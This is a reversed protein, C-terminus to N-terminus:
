QVFFISTAPPNPDGCGTQEGVLMVEAAMWGMRGSVMVFVPERFARHCRSSLRQASGAVLTAAACCAVAHATGCWKKTLAVSTANPDSCQTQSGKQSNTIEPDPSKCKQHSGQDALSIFSNAM